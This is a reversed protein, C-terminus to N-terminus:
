EPPRRLNWGFNGHHLPPAQGAESERDHRARHLIAVVDEDTVESFDDFFRSVADFPDPMGLCVVEDAELRLEAVAERPAVAAAAVIRGAGAERLARLAASMTAGTAIGDDVVIVVRDQPSVPRRGPTYLDRRHRLLTLADDAEGQLYQPTAVLEWHERLLVLGGETVAGVALEPREPARLKRVLVVDLDGGLERALVDAVLVGGRPIGLVLPRAARLPALAAALQVAAEGRNRFHVADDNRGFLSM